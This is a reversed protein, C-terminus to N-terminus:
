SVFRASRYSRACGPQSDYSRGQPTAPEAVSVNTNRGTCTKMSHVSQAGNLASINRHRAKVGNMLDRQVDYDRGWKLLDDWSWIISKVDNGVSMVHHKRMEVQMSCYEVFTPCTALYIDMIEKFTHPLM